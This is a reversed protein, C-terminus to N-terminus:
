AATPEPTLENLANAASPADFRLWIARAFTGDIAQMAMEHFNRVALDIQEDTADAPIFGYSASLANDFVNSYYSGQIWHQGPVDSDHKIWASAQKEGVV